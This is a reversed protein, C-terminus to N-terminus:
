IMYVYAAAEPDSYMSAARELMGDRNHDWFLIKVRGLGARHLAPGLHDRIFIREEDSTYLCSEWSQAAEPENQVSVGWIPVGALEM